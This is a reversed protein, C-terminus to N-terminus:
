KKKERQALEKELQEVTYVLLDVETQGVALRRLFTIANLIDINALAM